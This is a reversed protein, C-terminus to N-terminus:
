PKVSDRGKRNPHKLEWVAMDLSLSFDEKKPRLITLEEWELRVVNLKLANAYPLQAIAGIFVDYARGEELVSKVRGTKGVMAPNNAYTAKVYDGLHYPNSQM